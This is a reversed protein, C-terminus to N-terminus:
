PQSPLPPGTRTEAWRGPYSTPALQSFPSDLAPRHTLGCTPFSPLAARSARAGTRPRLIPPSSLGQPWVTHRLTDWTGRGLDRKEGDSYRHGPRGMDRQGQTLTGKDICGMNTHGHTERHTGSDRTRTDMHGHARTVTYGTDTDTCRRTRTDWHRYTGTEM